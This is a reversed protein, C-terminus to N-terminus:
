PILRELEERSFARKDPFEPMERQRRQWDNINAETKHHNERMDALKSRTADYGYIEAMAEAMAFRRQRIVSRDAGAAILQLAGRGWLWFDGIPDGANLRALNIATSDPRWGDGPQDRRTAGAAVKIANRVEKESPWAWTESNESLADLFKGWWDTLADGQPARRRLISLYAAIQDAQAQTNSAMNRPPARRALFDSLRRSLDADHLSM